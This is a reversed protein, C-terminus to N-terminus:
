TKTVTSMGCARDQGRGKKAQNRIFIEYVTIWM